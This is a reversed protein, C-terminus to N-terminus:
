AWFENVRQVFNDKNIPPGRADNSLKNKIFLWVNEIINLDPSQAPWQLLRINEQRFFNQTLQARHPPADDQQFFAKEQNGHIVRINEFLNEQLLSVYCTANMRQDCQVLRGVGNPGICGWFMVSVANKFTPQFLKPNNAESTTRWVRKKRSDNGLGFRCEDSFIVNKWDDISWERHERVWQIRIRRNKASVFPKRKRKHSLIKYKHLIKRVIYKTATKSVDSQRVEDFIAKLTGFRLTKATRCVTREGRETIKSPRGSRAKKAISGSSLYQNYTKLATSHHCNLQEGIKRFSLGSEKLYKIALREENSLERTKPM